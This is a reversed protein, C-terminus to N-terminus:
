EGKSHELAALYDCPVSIGQQLAFLATPQTPGQFASPFITIYGRQKKNGWQTKREADPHKQKM